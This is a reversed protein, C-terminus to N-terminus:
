AVRRWLKALHGSAVLEPFMKAAKKWYRKCEQRGIGELDDWMPMMPRAENKHCGEEIEAAEIARLFKDCQECRVYDYSEGFEPKECRCCKRAGYYFDWPCNCDGNECAQCEEHEQQHVTHAFAGVPIVDGCECCKMQVTALIDDADNVRAIWDGEQVFCM